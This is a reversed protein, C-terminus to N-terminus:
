KQEGGGLRRLWEVSGGWSRQPKEDKSEEGEGKKAESPKMDVSHFLTLERVQNEDTRLKVFNRDIEEVTANSVRDGVKVLSGNVIAADGIMGSFSYSVSSRHFINQSVEPAEVTTKKEDEKETGEDEGNVLAKIQPDLRRISQYAKGLHVWQVLLVVALALSVLIGPKRQIFSGARFRQLLERISTQIGAM